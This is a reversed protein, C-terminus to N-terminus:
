NTVVEQENEALFNMIPKIGVHGDTEAFHEIAKLLSPDSSAECFVLCKLVSAIKRQLSLSQKELMDYYDLNHGEQHLAKEFRLLKHKELETQQAEYDNILIEIKEIKEHPTLAPSQRVINIIGALLLKSHKHAEGLAKIAQRKEAKTAKDQSRLKANVTNIASRVCKMFIDVLTDQRMFYQHRIFALLYLYTKNRDPFDLLQSLKAKQVWTAYYVTAHDTLQLQKILPQFHHFHGTFVTCAEVNKKIDKARLSHQVTKLHTLQSQRSAPLLALMGDLKSRDEPTLQADLTQLINTEFHNFSDTIIITLHSSSPIEIKQQWCFDVVAMFLQKPNLQQKVLLHTQEIIYNEQASDLPQWGYLGFIQQAHRTRTSKPYDAFSITKKIGLQQKVHKIDKIRFQEPTFFKGSYKLYGLQLIFGVQRAVGRLTKALTHTDHTLTFYTAREKQNFAPPSDFKKKEAPSLFDLRSM